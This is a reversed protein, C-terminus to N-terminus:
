KIQFNFPILFILNNKQWEPLNLAKIMKAVRIGENKLLTLDVTKNLSKNDVSSSPGYAMVNIEDVISPVDKTKGKDSASIRDAMGKKGMIIVVDFQGSIGAKKAAEPYVINSHILNTIKKQSESSFINKVEPNQTQESKTSFSFVLLLTLVAPIILINKIAAFSNSSKKNIMIIRKKLNSNFSNALHVTSFQNPINLLLFQYDKFSTSKNVTKRDALYEHNLVISKRILWSIPNFWFIAVFLESFMLDFTHKQALHVKEHYLIDMNRENDYLNRPIVAYPYFSFPPHNLDSIAIKISGDSIIEGKYIIILTRIIGIFTRILLIISGTIWLWFLIQLFDINNVKASLSENANIGAVIVNNFLGNSTPNSYLNTNHAFNLVPIVLPILM